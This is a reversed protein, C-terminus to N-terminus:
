SCQQCKALILDQLGNASCFNISADSILQAPYRILHAYIIFSDIFRNEIM